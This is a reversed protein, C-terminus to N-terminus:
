NEGPSADRRHPRQPAIKAASVDVQYIDGLGNGPGRLWSLLESYNRRKGSPARGRASAFFFSKGDPSVSPSYEARPSNIGEGMNQAKTWVGDKQLSIYLDASNSLGDPRGAAMFILYSQDPAIYPEYEDFETNIADGLNEPEQYKGNVRRSRYIDTAGKGGPRDSGFYLTGDAALTPYWENGPSNVPAGLNREEIWGGGTRDTVWIDLDGTTKGPGPRRSIFYLQKGDATIFPDADSYQGSFPAVRPATWRGDVFRSVVITWFSFSPTSKVFYLTRGDATFAPHSEYDGTSIVGEGFITPAPMPNASAYPHAQEAAQGFCLLGLSASVLLAVVKRM